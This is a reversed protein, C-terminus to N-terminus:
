YASLEPFFSPEEVLSGVNFLNNGTKESNFLSIYGSEYNSLGLIIRM